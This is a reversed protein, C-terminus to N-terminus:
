VRRAPDANVDTVLVGVAPGGLAPPVQRCSGAFGYQLAIEDGTVIIDVGYIVIAAAFPLTLSKHAGAVLFERNAADAVAQRATIVAAPEECDIGTCLAGQGQWQGFRAWRRFLAGHGG